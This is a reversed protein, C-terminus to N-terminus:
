IKKSSVQSSIEIFSAKIMSPICGRFAHAYLSWRLDNDRTLTKMVESLTDSGYEMLIYLCEPLVHKERIDIGSVDIHPPLSKVYCKRCLNLPQLVADILGWQEYSIIWDRYQQNCLNCTEKCNATTSGSANTFSSYENDLEDFSEKEDGEIEGREVWATYYRVVHESRLASLADVERLVKNPSENALCTKSGLRICKLAYLRKDILNKM